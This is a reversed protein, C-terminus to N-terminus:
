ITSIMKLLKRCRNGSDTSNHSTNNSEVRVEIVCEETASVMKRKMDQLEALKRDIEDNTESHFLCLSDVRDIIPLIYQTSINNYLASARSAFVFRVRM